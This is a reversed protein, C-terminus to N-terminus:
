VKWLDHLLRCVTKWPLLLNTRTFKDTYLTLKSVLHQMSTDTYRPSWMFHATQM